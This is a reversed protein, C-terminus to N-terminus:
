QQRLAVNPDVRAARRAPVYTAAATALAIIIPVMVLAVPDFVQLDAPMIADIGAKSVLGAVLGVLLGALVPLAGERVVRRVLWERTCGLAMRIAMERRRQTVVTSLVGYLGTMVLVLTVLGLASSVWGLTYFMLFPGSLNSWASGSMGIAVDRDVSRIATRVATVAADADAARVVIAVERQGVDEVMPRVITGSRRSGMTFVDTDAAVGVVEVESTETGTPSLQRLWARRGVVAETGFAAVAISRSIVVVPRRDRVDDASLARGHLLPIGLSDWYQATARISYASTGADAVALGDQTGYFSLQDSGLGFPLGDAAASASIGPTQQLRELVQAHIVRRRDEDRPTLGYDISVVGLGELQVGPDHGGRAVLEVTSFTVMLLAVSGAVQITVLGKQLRWRSPGGGDQSGQTLRAASSSRVAPWLGSVVIATAAALLTVLAVRPTMTPEIWVSAGNAIPIDTHLALLVWRALLWAVALGGTVVLFSEALQERILRWRSAGLARRLALEQQRAASRSFGLSALNTCAMMLVLLVGTMIALGLQSFLRGEGEAPPGAGWVRAVREMSQGSSPRSPLAEELRRGIAEVQLHAEAATVAPALRGRVMLFRVHRRAPDFLGPPLAAAGHRLQDLPVWYNPAMAPSLMGTFDRDAVGIVTLPRAALAIPQGVADAASGFIRRALVDSIVIAPAAGPEHDVAQLPRGAVMRVGFTGFYDGTVGEGYVPRVDDGITVAAQHRMSAAVSTFAQQDRTFDLWDGWSMLSQPAVPVARTGAFVQLLRGSDPVAVPRWVLVSLVAHISVVTTFGVAFTAVAFLFYLPSACLRRWALTFDQGVHRLPAHGHPLLMIVIRLLALASTITVWVRRLGRTSRWEYVCDAWTHALLEKM